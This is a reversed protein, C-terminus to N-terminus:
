ADAFMKFIPAKIQLFNRFFVPVSRHLDVIRKGNMDQGGLVKGSTEQVLILRLGTSVCEDRWGAFDKVAAVATVRFLEFFVACGKTAEIQCNQFVALVVLVPGFDM